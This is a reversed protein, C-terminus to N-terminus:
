SIISILDTALSAPDLAFTATYEATGLISVTPAQIPCLPALILFITSSNFPSLISITSHFGTTSSNTEATRLGATTDFTVIKSSPM